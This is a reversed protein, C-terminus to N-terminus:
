IIIEQRSTPVSGHHSLEFCLHSQLTRHCPFVCLLTNQLILRIVNCTSHDCLHVTRCPHYGSAGRG